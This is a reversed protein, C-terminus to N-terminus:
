ANYQKQECRGGVIIRIDSSRNNDHEDNLQDFEDSEEIYILTVDGGVTAGPFEKCLKAIEKVCKM